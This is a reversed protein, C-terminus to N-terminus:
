QFGVSVSGCAIVQKEENSVTLTFTANTGSASGTLQTPFTALYNGHGRPCGAPMGQCADNFPLTFDVEMDTTRLTAKTPLNSVAQDVHIGFLFTVPTNLPVNCPLGVCEPSAFTIPEPLFQDKNAPDPCPKSMISAAITSAVCAALLLLKFM